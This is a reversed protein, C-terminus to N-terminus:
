TCGPRRSPSGCRGEAPKPDEVEEYRLNGADGFAHQRIAHM